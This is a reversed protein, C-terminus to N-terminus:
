KSSKLRYNMILFATVRFVVLFTVLARISMMINENLDITNLFKKPLQYHCYNENCEMKDRNWGLVATAGADLSHKIFSIQFIWHFLWHTDKVLIFIGSFIGYLPLFVASFTLTGQFIYSSM